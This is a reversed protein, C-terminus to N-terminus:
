MKAICVQHALLLLCHASLLLCHCKDKSFTHPDGLHFELYAVM